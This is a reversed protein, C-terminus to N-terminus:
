NRLPLPAIELSLLASRNIPDFLWFPIPQASARNPVFHSRQEFRDGLRMLKHATSSAVLLLRSRGNPPPKQQAAWNKLNRRLYNDIADNM